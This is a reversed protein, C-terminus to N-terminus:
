WGYHSQFSTDFSSPSVLYEPKVVSRTTTQKALSLPGHELDREGPIGDRVEPVSSPGKREAQGDDKNKGARNREAALTDLSDDESYQHHDNHHYYSHDDLHQGSYLRELPAKPPREPKTGITSGWQYNRPEIKTLESM